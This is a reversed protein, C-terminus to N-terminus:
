SPLYFMVYFYRSCVLTYIFEEWQAKIADDELLLMIRRASPAWLAEDGATASSTMSVSLADGDDSMFRHSGDVSAAPSSSPLLTNSSSTKSSTRGNESADVSQGQQQQQNQQAQMQQRLEQQQQHFLQRQQKRQQLRARQDTKAWWRKVEGQVTQIWFVPSQWLPKDALSHRLYEPRMPPEDDNISAEPNAALADDDLM